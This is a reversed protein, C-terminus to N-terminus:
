KSGGVQDAYARLDDRKWDAYEAPDKGELAAVYAAWAEQSANGAPREPSEYDDEGDAEMSLGDGQRSAESAAPTDTAPEAAPERRGAAKRARHMAAEGGPGTLRAGSELDWGEPPEQGAALWISSGQANAKAM